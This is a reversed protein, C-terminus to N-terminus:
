AARALGRPSPHAEGEKRIGLQTSTVWRSLMGSRQVRITSRAWSSTMWTPESARIFSEVFDVPSSWASVFFRIGGSLTKLGTLTRCWSFLRYGTSSSAAEYDSKQSAEPGSFVAGTVVRTELARLDHVDDAAPPTM